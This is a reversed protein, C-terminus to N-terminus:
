KQERETCEQYLTLTTKLIKRLAIKKFSKPQNMIFNLGKLM